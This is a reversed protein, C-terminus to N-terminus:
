NSLSQIAVVSIFAAGMIAWCLYITRWMSKRHALLAQKEKIIRESDNQNILKDPMFAFFIMQETDGWFKWLVGDARCASHIKKILVATKIYFRIILFVALAMLSIGFISSLVDAMHQSIM